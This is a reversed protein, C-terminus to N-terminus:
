SYRQSTLVNTEQQIVKPAYLRVKFDIGSALKLYSLSAAQVFHEYGTRSCDAFRIHIQIHRQGILQTDLDICNLGWFRLLYFNRIRDGKPGNRRITNLNTCILNSENRNSVNCICYRLSYVTTNYNKGSTELNVVEDRRRPTPPPSPPLPSTHPSLSSKQKKKHDPVPPYFNSMRNALLLFGRLM